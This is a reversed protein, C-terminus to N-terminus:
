RSASAARPRGRPGVAGLPVVARRVLRPRRHRPVVAPQAPRGRQGRRRRTMTEERGDATASACTWCSTTTPGTPRSSRPRSASTSACGSRTPAASRLLRAARGPDLLPVALRPAARVLLQLQPEPQRRPVRSVHERVVHRRRRREERPHRLARRGAAAPARRAAGVHGAGIILSVSTSTRARDRRRHWGPARRDEGRYALEEELLPLYPRWRPAASRTSWSRSCSSTPPRRRPGAGATASGSSRTRARARAGAGAARRDARGAAHASWCRTPGCTTAALSLDGTAYALAPLLPPVEADALFARIEDDSETIPEIATVFPSSTFTDTM